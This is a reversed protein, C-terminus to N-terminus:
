AYILIKEILLEIDGDLMMHGATNLTIQNANPLRDLYTQCHSFGVIKDDKSHCFHMPNCDALVGLEDKSLAFDTVEWDELGWFPAAISFVAAFRNNERWIEPNRALYQLISSGGLSHGVLVAGSKAQSVAQDIGSLWADIDPREPDPMAPAIIHYAGGLAENLRSILGSSGKQGDQPGASHIFVLDRRLTM